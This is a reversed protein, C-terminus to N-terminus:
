CVTLVSFSRPQFIRDLFSIAASRSVSALCILYFCLCCSYARSESMIIARSFFFTLFIMFNNVPLSRYVLFEIISGTLPGMKQWSLEFFIWDNKESKKIGRSKSHVFNIKWFPHAQWNRTWTLYCAERLGLPVIVVEFLPKERSVSFGLVQVAGNFVVQPRVKSQIDLELPM